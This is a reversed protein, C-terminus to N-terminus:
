RGITYGLSITLGLHQVWETDKTVNADLVPPETPEFEPESFFGEPYKLRWLLVRGEIRLTFRSSPHLWVGIRPGATFHTSFSYGSLSDANVKAGFAMGLGVGVYPTLGHWTKEGPLLLDFGGDLLVVKQTATDLTRNEPGLRPDILVRELNAVGASFTVGAPGGLHMDFRAGVYTGDSPGVGVKGASGSLVGGTLSLVRRSQLDRYPSSEPPHGVQAAAAQHTGFLAFVLLSVKVVREVINCRTNSM